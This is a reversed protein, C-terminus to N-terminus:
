SPGRGNREVCHANRLRAEAAPQAEFAQELPQTRAHDGARRVVIRAADGGIRLRAGLGAEVKQPRHHQGPRQHNRHLRDARADAADGAATEGAVHHLHERVAHHGDQDQQQEDGVGDIEAGVEGGHPRGGPQHDARAVGVKIRGAERDERQQRDHENGVVAIDAEQFPQGERQKGIDAHHERHLDVPVRHRHARQHRLNSSEPSESVRITAINPVVM